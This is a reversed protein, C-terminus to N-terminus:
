VQTSATIWCTNNKSARNSLYSCCDWGRQYIEGFQTGLPTSAGRPNTAVGDTVEIAGAPVESPLIPPLQNRGGCGRVIVRLQGNGIGVVEIAQADTLGNRGFRIGNHRMSNGEHGFADGNLGHGHVIAIDQLIRIIRRNRCLCPVDSAPVLVGAWDGAVPRNLCEVTQGVATHDRKLHLIPNQLGHRHILAIHQTRQVIGGDRGLGVVM